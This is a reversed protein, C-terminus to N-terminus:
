EDPLEGRLYANLAEVPNEPNKGYFYHFEDHCNSCLCICKKIEESFKDTLNFNRTSSISFCKTNPDIHHFQIIHKRTEGCKVCPTKFGNIINQIKRRHKKIAEKRCEKCWGYTGDRKNKYFESIPLVRGCRSCRKTESM